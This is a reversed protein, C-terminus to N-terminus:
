APGHQRMGLVGAHRTLAPHLLHEERAVLHGAEHGRRGEDTRRFAHQVELRRRDDFAHLVLREGAVHRAVVEALASFFQAQGEVLVNCIHDPEEPFAGVRKPQPPVQVLVHFGQVRFGSGRTGYLTTGTFEDTAGATWSSRTVTSYPFFRASRSTLACNGFPATPSRPGFPAPLLVISLASSPKM